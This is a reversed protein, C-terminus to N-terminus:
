IGIRDRAEATRKLARAVYFWYDKEMLYNDEGYTSGIIEHCKFCAYVANRENPRNRKDTSDGERFSIHALVTTEPDHYHVGHIQL